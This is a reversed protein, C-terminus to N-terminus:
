TRSDLTKTQNFFLSEALNLNELTGLDFYAGEQEVGLIRAGARVLPAYFQDIISFTKLAPLQKLAQPSILHTGCFLRKLLPPGAYPVFDVVTKIFGQRDTGFDSSPMSKLLLTVDARAEQHAKFFHPLDLDVAIDSNMLFVTDEYGLARDCANRLAGGTGLIEPEHFYQIRIGQYSPGVAERIQEALYHTNIAIQKVGAQVMYDLAYFILAKGHLEILAKPKTLTLPRLRMGFGAALIM